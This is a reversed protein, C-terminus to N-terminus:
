SQGSKDGTELAKGEPERTRAVARKGFDSRMDDRFKLVRSIDARPSQRGADFILRALDRTMTRIQKELDGVRESNNVRVTSVMSDVSTANPYRDRLAFTEATSKIVDTVVSNLMAIRRATDHALTLAVSGLFGSEVSLRALASMVTSWDRPLVESPNLVGLCSLEVLDAREWEDALGDIRFHEALALQLALDDAREEEAQRERLRQQETRVQVFVQAGAFLVLGITLWEM